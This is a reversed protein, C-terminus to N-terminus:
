VEKMPMYCKKISWSGLVCCEKNYHHRTPLVKLWTFPMIDQLTPDVPQSSTRPSALANWPLSKHFLHPKTKPIYLFAHDLCFWTWTWRWSLVSPWQTFWATSVTGHLSWTLILGAWECQGYQQNWTHQRLHWFKFTYQSCFLRLAMTRLMGCFVTNGPSM